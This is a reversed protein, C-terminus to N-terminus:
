KRVGLEQSRGAEKYVKCLGTKLPWGGHVPDCHEDDTLVNINSEFAGHLDSGVPREPFWWAHEAHVVDPKLGDFYQCKMRVKGRPGEIVVWDGDAIGQKAATEPHIQVLPEPHKRRISPVQFYETHFNWRFRGGTILMLPYEKALDPRSVPNEFSEAYPPLPDYGLKEIITSYLELKGTPTAFGGMTEYKRPLEPPFEYGGKAMLQKFTMEMPQLRYDFTEEMNRWSFFDGFGLRLALGRFIEYDSKHDYEGPIAAPLASEGAYLNSDEGSNDYVRPRELWNAAPLVYDALEASPTMFFDNVVYLDLSKLAECILRSNPMTMVPNSSVTYAARVPYPKGTLMARYVSPAHAGGCPPAAGCKMGWMEKIREQIADRGPFGLLKYRDSGIQKQKQAEPLMDELSFEQASTWHRNPGSMAEGGPVDINGCIATLILRAQIASVADQLHETGMGHPFLAPGNTAYMRAAAAIQEAPVGTIGAVKELTYPAVKEAVKDFGHTWKGVFDKDYLKEQIVLNIMGLFLAYDTGPRLQLWIDALEATETRRPDIVIVKVGMKRCQRLSNWLKAVSQAPNIGALMICKTLPEKSAGHDITLGTRHRLAWGCMTQAIVAIPGHCILGPGTHNPTGFANAFRLVYESMTRGTGGTFTLTEAGYKQKLQGLKAAVEDFAQDWSVTQWQGGGREGIRKRPYNVRDPHYMWEKAGRLRLCAKVPPWVKGSKPFSADEDIATLHGNRSTVELRCRAHCMACVAKKTVTDSM